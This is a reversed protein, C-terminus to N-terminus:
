SSIVDRVVEFLKSPRMRGAPQPNPLRPTVSAVTNHNSRGSRLRYVLPENGKDLWALLSKFITDIAERSPARCKHSITSFLVALESTTDKPLASLPVGVGKHPLCTAWASRFHCSGLSRPRGTWFMAICNTKEHISSSYPLFLRQNPWHIFNFCFRM